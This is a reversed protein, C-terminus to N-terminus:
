SGKQYYKLLKQYNGQQRTNHSTKTDHQVNDGGYKTGQNIITLFQIKPGDYSNQLINM